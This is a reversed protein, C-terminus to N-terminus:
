SDFTPDLGSIVSSTDPTWVNNLLRDKTEADNYVKQLGFLGSFAAHYDDVFGVLGNPYHPTFETQITEEYTSAQLKKTGTLVYAGACDAWALIGDSTAKHRDLMRHTTTASSCSVM